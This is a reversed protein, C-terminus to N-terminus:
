KKLTARAAKVAARKDNWLFPASSKNTAENYVTCVAGDDSCVWLRVIGLGRPALAYPGAGCRVDRGICVYPGQYQDFPEVSGGLAKAIAFHIPYAEATLESRCMEGTM